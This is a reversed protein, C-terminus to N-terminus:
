RACHRHVVPVLADHNSVKKDGMGGHTRRQAVPQELLRTDAIRVSRADRPIGSRFAPSGRSRDTSDLHPATATPKAAKVDEGASKLEPTMQLGSSYAMVAREICGEDEGCKEAIKMMDSAMPAMKQSASAARKQQEKSTPM